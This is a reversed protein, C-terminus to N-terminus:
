AFNLEFIFNFNFIIFFDKTKLKLKATEYINM